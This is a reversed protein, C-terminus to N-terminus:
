VVLNVQNVLAEAIQEKKKLYYARSYESRGRTDEPHNRRRTANYIKKKSKTAKSKCEARCKACCKTQQNKKGIFLSADKQLRCRSCRLAQIELPTTM